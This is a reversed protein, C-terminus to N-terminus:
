VWSLHFLGQSSYLQIAPPVLDLWSRCESSSLRADTQYLKIYLPCGSVIIRHFLSLLRLIQAMYVSRIKRGPDSDRSSRIHVLILREFMMSISKISPKKLEEQMSDLFKEIEDRWFYNRPNVQCASTYEWYSPYSGAIEWHIIGVIEDRWVLINSSLGGHTFVLPLFDRDQM